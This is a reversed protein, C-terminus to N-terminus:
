SRSRRCGGHLLNQEDQGPAALAPAAGGERRHRSGPATLKQEPIRRELTRPLLLSGEEALVPGSWRGPLAVPVSGQVCRCIDLLSPM